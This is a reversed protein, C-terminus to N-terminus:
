RRISRKQRKFVWALIWKLNTLAFKLAKTWKEDNKIFRISLGGIHDGEIKYPLRISSDQTEAWKGLEHLCMLWALIGQNFVSTPFNDTNSGHLRLEHNQDCCRIKSLSGLPVIQYRSFSVGLCTKLTKLLLAAEGWAANIENWEVEHSALRGMRFGNITGFPGDHWIYFAENFVNNQKIDNVRRHTLRINSVGSDRDDRFASLHMQFDNVREWQKSTAESLKKNEEDLHEIERLITARENQMLLLNQQISELNQQLENLNATPIESEEHFQNIRALLGVFARKEERAQEIESMVMDTM